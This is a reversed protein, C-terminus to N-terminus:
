RVGSLASKTSFLTDHLAEPHPRAALLALLLVILPLGLAPELSIQLWLGLRRALELPAAQVQGPAPAQPQVGLLLEFRMLNLLFSETLLTPANPATHTPQIEYVLVLM